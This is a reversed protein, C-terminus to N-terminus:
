EPQRVTAKTGMEQEKGLETWKPGMSGVLTMRQHLWKM